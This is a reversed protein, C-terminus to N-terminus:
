TLLYALRYTSKKFKNYHLKIFELLLEPTKPSYYEKPAGSFTKLNFFDEWNNPLKGKFEVVANSLRITGVKHQYNVMWEVYDSDSLEVFRFGNIFSKDDMIEPTIKKCKKSLGFLVLNKKLFEISKENDILFRTFGGVTYFPVVRM